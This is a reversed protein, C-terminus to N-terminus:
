SSRSCAPRARSTASGSPTAPIARSPRICCGPSKRGRRSGARWRSRRSSTSACACRWAHAPRAPRPVRGGSGPVHRLRRLDRAPAALLARQGLRPRAAPRLRRESVEHRGRDRPRRRARAAPLVPADGLYQGHPRVAGRRMRWRPSRRCTRCRSPNRARRRRSSPRRTRGCSRRSAPASSRTTTPRKSGSASRARRRLLDADAPLGFGDGPPPRRGQPLVDARAHRRCARVPRAGHRGRRCSADLRTELAETTPTGKTGYTYRGRRHLLDDTTPFLVTSGRYIPTNVFGHQERRTAAPMSSAPASASSTVPKPPPNPCQWSARHSPSLGSTLGPATGHGDVGPSSQGEILVQGTM